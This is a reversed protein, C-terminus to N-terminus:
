ALAARKASIPAEQGEEQGHPTRQARAAADPRQLRQGGGDNAGRPRRLGGRRRGPVASRGAANGGRGALAEAATHAAADAAAAAAAAAATEVKEQALRDRDALERQLKLFTESPTDDDDADVTEWSHIWSVTIIFM